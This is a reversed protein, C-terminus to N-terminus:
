SDYQGGFLLINAWHFRKFYIVLWYCIITAAIGICPIILNDSIFFPINSLDFHIYRRFIKELVITQLGYVGLTVGGLKGIACMMRGKYFQCSYFAIGIVAVSASLATFLQWVIIQSENLMNHYTLLVPEQHRGAFIFFLSCLITIPMRYRGYTANYKRLFYGAWFFMLMWNFQLFYGHPFICALLISLLCLWGDNLPIRKVLWVYLYCAFLTKLFWMGGITEAKATEMMDYGGIAWCTVITLLPITFAPVLLQLAKSKIFTLFEKSLAKTAFYGSMLMFLPMHFSYIWKRLVSPEPLTVLYTAHGICVLCIAVAKVVDLYLIRNSNSM